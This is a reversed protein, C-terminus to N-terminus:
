CQLLVGSQRDEPASPLNPDWSEPYLASVKVRPLVQYYLGFSRGSGFLHGLSASSPYAPRQLPSLGTPMKPNGVKLLVDLLWLAEFAPKQATLQRNPIWALLLHQGATSVDGSSMM